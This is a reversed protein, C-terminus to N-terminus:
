LKESHRPVEHAEQETQLLALAHSYKEIRELDRTTVNAIRSLDMNDQIDAIKVARSIPNGAARRVFNEYDEGEIKTVLRLADIVTTSFGEDKLRKFTWGSCDEVVDHLVAVIRAEESDQARMVRLPHSIYPAGAKDVQDAHAATAIAIARELNM